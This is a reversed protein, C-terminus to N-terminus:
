CLRIVNIFCLCCCVEMLAVLALFVSPMAVEFINVEYGPQTWAAVIAIVPLASLIMFRWALMFDSIRTRKWFSPTDDKLKKEKEDKKQDPQDKATSGKIFSLDYKDAEMLDKKNMIKTYRAYFSRLGAILYLITSAINV